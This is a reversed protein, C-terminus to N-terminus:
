LREEILTRLEDLEMELRDVRHLLEEKTSTLMPCSGAWIASVFEPHDIFPNRNGQWSHIVVNRRREIDSVSDQLHWSLLTCLKGFNAEGSTTLRDVLVLDPTRSNDGGEYRVAMYFMMRAIDGKVVDPPEWTGNGERCLTCETDPEGGNAFDNNSRDTKVSRDAAVIHHADTYAHQSHKPFGKSKAWIHERNWADQDSTGKDQRSKPISRGTYIEIVNDANTPDEDAEKLIDWLCPTYNYRKHDRIIQNLTAKLQEGSRGAASQYYGDVDVPPHTQKECAALAEGCFAFTILAAILQRM